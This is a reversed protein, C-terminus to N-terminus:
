REVLLQCAQHWGIGPCPQNQQLVLCHNVCWWYGPVVDVVPRQALEDVLECLTQWAAALAERETM